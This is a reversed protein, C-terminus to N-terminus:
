FNQRGVLARALTGGDIYELSSGLPIGMAPRLIRVGLHQLQEKLYLATADGELTSDLALIVDTVGLTTIREKLKNLNLDEPSKGSLPSILGGLVHYIGKFVRTEEITFVDKPNSIVCLHSKERLNSNCLDCSTDETLCGCEPCSTIKEKFQSLTFSFDKIQNEPWDLIHFAFREATKAGVGPFKKFYSILTKLQTPYKTM